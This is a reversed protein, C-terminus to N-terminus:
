STGNGGTGGHGAGAGGRNTNSAGAGTGFTAGFGRANTSLISSSLIDVNNVALLNISRAQVVASNLYVARGMGFNANWRIADRFQAIAEEYRGLTAM